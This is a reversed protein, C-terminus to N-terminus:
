KKPEAKYKANLGELVPATIDLSADAFLITSGFTNALIYKYGKDKNYEALFDMISQLIKRQMVVQEEGLEMRYQESLQMLNREELALQQEMEALRARTELGKQAKNQFDTVNAQFRRQRNTLEADLKTMKDELEGSLDITMQYHQMLSDINVHVISGEDIPSFSRATQSVGSEGTADQVPTKKNDCSILFLAGIACPILFLILKKM